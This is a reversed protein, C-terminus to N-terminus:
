GVIHLVSRLNQLLMNVSLMILLMGALREVATLGRPGLFRQLFSAQLLILATAAWALIVALYLEWLPGTYTTRLTILMALASPGAVAPTALPVLLPESDPMDGLVGQPTPFILRMAVVFLIIGGAIGTAERSLGLGTLIHEGLTLFLLLGLAFLLERLAVKLRREAPVSKLAALFVAINGFPDTILFILVAVGLM